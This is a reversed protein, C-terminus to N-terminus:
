RRWEGFGEMHKPNTALDTIGSDGKGVLDELRDYLSPKKGQMNRPVVLSKELSERVLASSSKGSLRARTELKKKLAEPLKITISTMIGITLGGACYALGVAVNRKGRGGGEAGKAGKQELDGYDRNQLGAPFNCPQVGAMSDREALGESAESQVSM